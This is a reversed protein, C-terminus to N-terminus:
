YIEDAAKKFMSRHERGWANIDSRRHAENRKEREENEKDMERIIEKVSRNKLNSRQFIEIIRADLEDYPVSFCFTTGRNALSHVEFRQTKSNFCVFLDSDLEELREPISTTSTEIVHLYPKSSTRDYIESRKGRRM